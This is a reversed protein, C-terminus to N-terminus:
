ARTGPLGYFRAAEHLQRRITGSITEDGPPVEWVHREAAEQTDFLRKHFGPDPYCYHILKPASPEASLLQEGTYNSVCWETIVPDLGLRHIALVLSWMAALYPKQQGVHMESITVIVKEVRWPGVNPFREISDLWADALPQQLGRPIVHPVGGDIRHTRLRAPPIDLQACVEDLAPQNEAADPNLYTLHDLTIQRDTLALEEIPLPQLFVMDPDCLVLFDADSQVCRLTAATNRPPYNAGGFRRYNPVCQVIGGAARIHEYASLLPEDDKHVVVIPTQGAYHVCSYHFLMAQWALYWHNETCAIIQYTHM